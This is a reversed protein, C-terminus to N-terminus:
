EQSTQYHTTSGGPPGQARCRLLYLRSLASELPGAGISPLPFSVHHFENTPDPSIPTQPKNKQAKGARLGQLSDRSLVLWQLVWSGMSRRAEAARAIKQGTTRQYKRQAARPSKSRGNKGKPEKVRQDPERDRGSDDGPCFPILNRGQCLTPAKTGKSPERLFAPHRSSVRM